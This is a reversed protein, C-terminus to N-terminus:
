KTRDAHRINQVSDMEKIKELLPEYSSPVWGGSPCIEMAVGDVFCLITADWIRGSLTLHGKESSSMSSIDSWREKICRGDPLRQCIFEDTISYEAGFWYARRIHILRRVLGIVLIGSVAILLVLILPSGLPFIWIESSNRFRFYIGYLLLTGFVYVSIENIILYARCWLSLRFKFM